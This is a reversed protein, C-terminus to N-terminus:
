VGAAGLRALYNEVVRKNQTDDGSLYRRVKKPLRPQGPHRQPAPKGETDLKSPPVRKYTGSEEQITEPLVYVIREKDTNYVPVMNDPRTYRRAELYRSLVRDALSMGQGGYRFFGLGKHKSRLFGRLKGVFNASSM